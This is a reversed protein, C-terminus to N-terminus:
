RGETKLEFDYRGRIAHGDSGSTRWTVRYSGAALDGVVRAKFSTPDDTKEVKAVEVKGNAGEIGIAALALEPEESFWLRVTDPATTLVQDASPYSKTLRLHLSMAAASTAVVALTAVGVVWRVTTRYVSM